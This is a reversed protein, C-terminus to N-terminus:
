EAWFGQQTTHAASTFGKMLLTGSYSGATGSKGCAKTEPTTTYTIGAVTWTYRIDRGSGTGENALDYEPTGPVQEGIEVSCSAAPVTIAMKKGPPCFFEFGGTIFGDMTLQPKTWKIGCGNVDVTANQGFAKCGEYVPAISLETATTKTMEGSMKVVSCKLTGGSFTFVNQTAQEGFLFVPSSEGHYEMASAGSAAVANLAIAACLLVGLMKPKSM